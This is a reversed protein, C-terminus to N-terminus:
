TRAGIATVVVYVRSMMSPTPSPSKATAVPHTKPHPSAPTKMTHLVTAACLDCKPEPYTHARLVHQMCAHWNHTFLRLMLPRCQRRGGRTLARRPHWHCRSHILPNFASTHANTSPKISTNHRLKLQGKSQMRIVSVGWFCALTTSNFKQYPVYTHM